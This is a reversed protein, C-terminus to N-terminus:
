LARKSLFLSKKFLTFWSMEKNVRLTHRLLVYGVEEIQHHLEALHTVVWEEDLSDFFFQEAGGVGFLNGEKWRPSIGPISGLM